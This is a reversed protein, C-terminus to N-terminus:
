RQFIISHLFYVGFFLKKNVDQLNSVFFAPDPDKDLELDM